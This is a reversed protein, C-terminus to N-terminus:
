PGATRYFASSPDTGHTASFFAGFDDGVATLGEYDGTFFGGANPALRMDFPTNTLRTESAWSAPSTCSAHCHVIWYDTPLTAPDSTNNQFDYYTVGVTGDESVHVSPTFAQQNGAPIGTPTANVKIAPTWTFGGDTSMSFAISDFAGGSFRADQWVAYLNGSDPDVAIDPIIDGTRVDERTEPDRIFVTGLRDVIIPDVKGSGQKQPGWTDGEDESRIVAVNYLAGRPLAGKTIRILDFINVLDGDPLVVIQNGITQKITGPDYIERAPEWSAGGTTSRAFWIPGRFAAANFSAIISARENPPFELRDWIAYVLSANTPDATITQKDNFITPATDRRVVVPASWTLGGNTSRSALLAHDFDFETFPAQLDNFSLALQHVVGNPSFSVWPDTSRQYFGGSCVTIGPIVSQAWSGGGDMSVTAVLGRAGGDSWRDQQFIGVLNDTDTPNVDIWPEVESHLYNTSDTGTQGPVDDATCGAFASTGSAQVLPGATFTAATAATVILLALLGAAVLLGRGKM